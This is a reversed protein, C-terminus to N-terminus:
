MILLLVDANESFSAVATSMSASLVVCSAASSEPDFFSSPEHIPVM